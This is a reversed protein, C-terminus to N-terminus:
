GKQFDIKKIVSNFEDWKKLFVPHKEEVTDTEMAKSAMELEKAMASIGMVGIVALNSKISHITIEYNKYDKEDYATLLRERVEDINGKYIAFNALVGEAGDFSYQGAEEIDIEEMSSLMKYIEDPTMMNEKMNREESDESLTSEGDSTNNGEIIDEGVKKEEYRMHTQILEPKFWRMLKNELTIGTIPKSLYDSFGKQIYIERAGSIANATLAIVPTDGIYNNERMRNLTEIGDMEPMMHDLLIVDYKNDSVMKLAEKGSEATDINIGTFKLLGIVVKLNMENDDVVLIKASPAYLMEHYKTKQRLSEKYRKYFDGVPSRESVQQPIKVKFVSGKGFESEVSIEGHMMTVLNKTIALGLGTGEINCNVKEDVRQFSDFLKDIDEERIGRGTDSVSIILSIGTGDEKYDVDFLVYGEDTYKVANTLLNTIIQRVRVEDGILGSPINENVNIRFDLNKAVARYSIMNVVDNLLSSLQYNVLVIEFKGSEIKSFDLLDNILSLLMKGANQINGANEITSEENSERLIIEDMGLIVNIPTRIEHSMNALFSSKAASAKEAAEKERLLLEATERISHTYNDILYRMHVSCMVFAFIMAGLRSYQSMDGTKGLSDSLLDAMAGLFYIFIAIGALWDTRNKNGKLTIIYRYMIAVISIMILVHSIFVMEMFDFVGTLQLLIQAVCNILLILQWVNIVKQNNKFLSNRYYSIMLIPAMILYIFVLISYLTQNGYFIGLVKTEILCYIGSAMILLSIYQVSKTDQNSVKQIVYILFLVISALIIFICEILRFFNKKLYNLICVDRRAISISKIDGAYGNYPSEMVITIYGSRINQPIDVFNIISGPTKGFWRKDGYGFSYILMEDAYVTVKVDASLFSITKGYDVRSVKKRIVFPTNKPVYENYPLNIKQYSGDDRCIYWGTNFDGVDKSALTMDEISFTFICLLIVICCLAGSIKLAINSNNLRKNIM